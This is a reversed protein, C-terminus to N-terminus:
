HPLPLGSVLATLSTTDPCHDLPKLQQGGANIQDRAHGRYTSITIWGHGECLSCREWQMASDYYSIRVSVHQGGSGTCEPCLRERKEM